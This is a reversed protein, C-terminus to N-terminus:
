QQVQIDGAGREADVFTYSSLPFNQCGVVEDSRPMQFGVDDRVEDDTAWWTMGVGEDRELEADSPTWGREEPKYFGWTLKDPREPDNGNDEVVLLVRQGIYQSPNADRIIGSIVARNGHVTMCDFEVRILAGTFSDKSGTGDLDLDEVATEDSYTMSGTTSGDPQVRADFELYKAYGDELYFQYTGSAAQESPQATAAQPTAFSMLFLAMISVYVMSSTTRRIKRM